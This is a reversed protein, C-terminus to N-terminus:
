REGLGKKIEEIEAKLNEYELIKRKLFRKTLRARNDIGAPTLVYLYRKKNASQSFNKVKILGKDVLAKVCYNVKGLSIGLDDAIQRQSVEPNSDIKLLIRYHADEPSM